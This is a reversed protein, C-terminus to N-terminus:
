RAAERYFEGFLERAAKEYATSAAEPTEFYGLHICRNEFMIQARYKSISKKFSVGRYGSSNKKLKSQNRTNEAVTCVRLNQRRCDLHNGNRHDVLFGPPCELIFRHLKVDHYKGDPHLISTAFYIGRKRDSIHWKRALVLPAMDDDILVDHGKINIILEAGGADVLGKKILENIYAADTIMRQERAKKDNAEMRSAKELFANKAWYHRYKEEGIYQAAKLYEPESLKFVITIEKKADM